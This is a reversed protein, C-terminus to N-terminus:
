LKRRLSFTSNEAKYYSQEQKFHQFCPLHASAAIDSHKSHEERGYIKKAGM